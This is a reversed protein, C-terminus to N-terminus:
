EFTITYTSTGANHTPAAAANNALLADIKVADNAGVNTLVVDFQDSNGTNQNVAYSGKYPNANVANYNSALHGGTALASVSISALSGNAEVYDVVSSRLTKIDAAVAKPKSKGIQSMSPLVTALLLGLVVLAIIIEVLTFGDNNNRITSLKM